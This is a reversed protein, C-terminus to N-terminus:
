FEVPVILRIDTSSAGVCVMFQGDVRVFSHSTVSWISLHLQDNLRFSITQSAGPQLLVKGFGRLQLLPEGASRPFELYLQWAEAAARQGINSLEFTVLRLKSHM